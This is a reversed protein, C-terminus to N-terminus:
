TRLVVGSMEMPRCRVVILMDDIVVLRAMLTKHIRRRRRARGDAYSRRVCGVDTLTRVVVVLNRIPTASVVIHLGTM